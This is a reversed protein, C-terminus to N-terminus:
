LIRRPVHQLRIKELSQARGAERRLGDVEHQARMKMHVMDAPLVRELVPPPHGGKRPGAVEEGALFPLVPRRPIAIFVPGDDRVADPRHPLAPAGRADHPSPPAGSRTSPSWRILSSSARSGVGPWVGPWTLRRTLEWPCSATIVPSRM